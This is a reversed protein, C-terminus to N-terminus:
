GIRPINRPITRLTRLFLSLSTLVLTLRPAPSILLQVLLCAPPPPSRRSGAPRWCWRSWSCAEEGRRVLGCLGPDLAPGCLRRPDVSLLSTMTTLLQRRSRGRHFQFRWGRLVIDPQFRPRIGYSCTLSERMVSSPFERVWMTRIAERMGCVDSSDAARGGDHHVCSLQGQHRADYIPYVPHLCATRKRLRHL